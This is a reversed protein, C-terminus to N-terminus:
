KSDTEIRSPLFQYYWKERKRAAINLIVLAATMTVTVFTGAISGVILSTGETMTSNIIVGAQALFGAMLLLMATRVDGHSLAIYEFSEEPKQYIRKLLTAAFFPIPLTILFSIWAM